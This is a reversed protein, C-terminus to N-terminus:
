AMVRSPPFVEDVVIRGDLHLDRSLPEGTARPKECFVPKKLAFAAEAIARHTSQPSAIVVAEVAPDAVLAQWDDAARRFGFKEALRKGSEPTSGAVMELRPRLGTEFVAGVASMAVAHAKGMYGGGVIGIGIERM